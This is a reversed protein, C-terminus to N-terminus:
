CFCLPCLRNYSQWKHICESHFMHNCALVVKRGVLDDLCICCVDINYPNIVTTTTAYLDMIVNKFTISLTSNSQIPFEWLDDKAVQIAITNSKKSFIINSDSYTDICIRNSNGYTIKVKAGSGPVLNLALNFSTNQLMLNVTAFKELNISSVRMRDNRTKKVRINVDSVDLWEVKDNYQPVNCIKSKSRLSQLSYGTNQKVVSGFVKGMAVLSKHRDNPLKNVINLFKDYIMPAITWPDCETTFHQKIIPMMIFLGYLSRINGNHRENRTIATNFMTELQVSDFDKDQIISITYKQTTDRMRPTNYMIKAFRQLEPEHELFYKHIKMVSLAVDINDIACQRSINPQSADFLCCQIRTFDADLSIDWAHAYRVKQGAYLIADDDQKICVANSTYSIPTELLCVTNKLKDGDQDTFSDIKVEAYDDVINALKYLLDGNHKYGTHVMIATRNSRYNSPDYFEKVWSNVPVFDTEIQPTVLERPM